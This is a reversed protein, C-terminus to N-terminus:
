WPEGNDVYQRVTDVMARVNEPPVDPTTGTGSSFILRKGRAAKLCALTETRVDDPSGQRLLGHPNLGGFLCRKEDLLPYLQEVTHVDSGFHWIDFGMQQILAVHPESHGGENHYLKVAYPFEDFVKKIYPLIFQEMQEPSVQHPVHDGIIVLEATGNVEEQIHLWRILFQTILDMLRIIRDPEMYFGLYYNDYGLVLGAIESPGMSIALREMKSGLTALKEQMQRLQFIYFPMLGESWPDPVKLRDIDDMRSVSPAIFPAGHDFWTIKGGFASAEVVVGLDPWVGPLILADPFNQKLRLQFSLKKEVDFYYGRMDPIGGVMSAHCPAFDWIAPLPRQPSPSRILSVLDQFDPM